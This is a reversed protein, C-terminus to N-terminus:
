ATVGGKRNYFGALLEKAAAADPAACLSDLLARCQPLTCGCLAQKVAATLGDSMSLKRMGAGVLAPAALPDGGLEGCIGIPKGAQVFAQAAMRVTRWVAPHYKQCYGAVAPETRDVALLYQTLDNSGISAFDAHAALADACLAMSPIEIMAGVRLSQSVAIGQKQLDDREQWLMARARLFDEVSGVMPFMLWLNGYVSARLAARLQTRFIHPQAFCLRLAREGLFPNQEQPLQMCDVKKDGGIDLTRLVVPKGAFAELVRRYVALQEEEDPLTQRGMYLFETRFLGVGEAYAAPKLAEATIQALNVCIDVPTGDALLCPKLRFAETKQKKIQLQRAKQLYEQQEQATPCLGLFGNVADAVATDGTKVATCCDKVGVICPIGYSRAIIATHSTEGGLQTVIALVNARDIGATDAPLLDEAVVICPAPLSSLDQQPLGALIRLLRNRVDTLDAARERIREERAKAFMAIYQGFVTMVAQAASLGDELALAMDEAMAEDEAIEIHAQLIKVQEPAAAQLRSCLERLEAKAQQLANGFALASDAQATGQQEIRKLCDEPLVPKYCFVQGVALGESVPLGNYHIM